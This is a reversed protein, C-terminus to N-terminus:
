YDTAAAEAVAVATALAALMQSVANGGPVPPVPVTAAPFPYAAGTLPNIEFQNWERGTLPNVPYPPVWTQGTAPNVPIAPISPATTAKACETIFAAAILKLRLVSQRGSPNNAVGAQAEADATIEIAIQSQPTSIVISSM